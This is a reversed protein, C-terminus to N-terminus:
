QKKHVSCNGSHPERQPTHLWLGTERGKGKLRCEEEMEEYPPWSWPPVATVAKGATATKTKNKKTKKKNNRGRSVDKDAKDWCKKRGMALNKKM